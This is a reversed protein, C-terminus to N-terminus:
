IMLGFRCTLDQGNVVLNNRERGCVRWYTHIFALQQDLDVSVFKTMQPLTHVEGSLCKRNCSHDQVM